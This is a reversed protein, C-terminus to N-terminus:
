EVYTQLRFCLVILIFTFEWLTDMQNQNKKAAFM